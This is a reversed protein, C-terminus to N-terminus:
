LWAILFVPKGVAAGVQVVIVSTSSDESDVSYLGLLATSM